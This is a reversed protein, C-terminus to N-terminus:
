APDPDIFGSAAWEQRRHVGALKCDQAWTSTSMRVIKGLPNTEDRKWGDDEKWSLMAEYEARGEDSSLYELRKALRALGEKAEDSLVTPENSDSRSPLTYNDPLYDAVDIAANPAPFFRSRYAPAGFVLPVSGRELAQFYKETVYDYDNSNEFAVSFLYYNIMTIKTNWKTHQGVDEFHGMEKLVDDAEANRHCSGFNDMKGPLLSTLEDLIRTRANKPHCNSIFSAAVKDRRKESWPVPPNAYNFYGYSYTAPVTSNLRYTMEYDYTENRKGDRVSDFHRELVKRNPASEIGWIAFKQWPRATRREALEEGELGRHSDSNYVVIDASAEDSYVVPIPCDPPLIPPRANLDNEENYHIRVALAFEDDTLNPRAVNTTSSLDAPELASSSPSVTPSSLTSRVASLVSVGAVVGVVFWALQGAWKPRKQKRTSQWALGEDDDDGLRTAGQRFGIEAEEEGEEGASGGRREVEGDSRGPQDHESGSLPTYSFTDLKVPPTTAM